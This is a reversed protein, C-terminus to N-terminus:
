IIMIGLDTRGTGSERKLEPLTYETAWKVAKSQHELSSFNLPDLLSSKTKKGLGAKRATFPM